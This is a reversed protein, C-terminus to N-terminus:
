GVKIKYVIERQMTVYDGDNGLCDEWEIIIHLAPDVWRGLFLCAKTIAFDEDLMCCGGIPVTIDLPGKYQWGDDGDYGDYAGADCYEWFEDFLPSGKYKPNTTLVAVVISKAEDHTLEINSHETDM